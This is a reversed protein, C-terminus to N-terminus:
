IRTEAQKKTRAPSKKKTSNKTIKRPTATASKEGLVTSGEIWGAPITTVSPQGPAGMENHLLQATVLETARGGLQDAQFNLAACGPPARLSNLCVFAHDEPVRTGTGRIWKLGESEHGIVVDPKYKKFWKLFATQTVNGLLLPPVPDVAPLYTQLAAFAGEWRYQLRADLPVEMFLGPRRYGRRHLEQLLAVMSRYHDSCVCHLPPRDIFYDVYVATYRSWSLATFDPFGEAPLIVLAQIGRTHLITDLRKLTMGEPGVNFKEIKFGLEAGRRHIGTMLAESYRVAHISRDPPIIEIAGIVGRFEQGSSRRLLSMVTGTLPNRQYGVAAAAERVRRVTEAKVRPSDRLADSVTTRSLGLLKALTRLTPAPM